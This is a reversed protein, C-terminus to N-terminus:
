HCCIEDLERQLISQSELYLKLLYFSFMAGREARGTRLVPGSM